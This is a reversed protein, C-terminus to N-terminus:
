DNKNEKRNKIKKLYQIDKNFIYLGEAFIFLILILIITEDTLLFFITLLSFCVGVIIVKLILFLIM